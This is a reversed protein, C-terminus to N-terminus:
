QPSYNNPSYISDLRQQLKKYMDNDINLRKNKNKYSKIKNIIELLRKIKRIDYPNYKRTNRTLISAERYIKDLTTNYNENKLLTNTSTNYFENTKNKTLYSLRLTLYRKVEYIIPPIYIKYYKNLNNHYKITEIGEIIILLKKIKLIDSKNNKTNNILKYAEEQLKEFYKDHYRRDYTTIKKNLNIQDEPIQSPVVQNINVESNQHIQKNLEIQPIQKNLEIDLLIFLLEFINEDSAINERRIKPTMKLSCGYVASCKSKFVHEISSYEDIRICFDSAYIIHTLKPLGIFIINKKNRKDDYNFRLIKALFQYLKYEQLIKIDPLILDEVVSKEFLSVLVAHAFAGVPNIIYNRKDKSTIGVKECIVRNYQPFSQPNSNDIYHNGYFVPINFVKKYKELFLNNLQNTLYENDLYNFNFDSLLKKILELLNPNISIYENFLMNIIIKILYQKFTSKDIDDIEKDTIFLNYLINKVFLEMTNRYSWLGSTMFLRRKSIFQSLIELLITSLNFIYINTTDSRCINIIETCLLKIDYDYNDKIKIYYNIMHNIFYFYSYMTIKINSPIDLGGKQKKYTMKKKIIMINISNKKLYNM